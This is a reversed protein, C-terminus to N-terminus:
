NEKWSKGSVLSVHITILNSFVDVDIDNGAWVVAGGVAAGPDTVDRLGGHLQSQDAPWPLLWWSTRRGLWDLFAGQLFTGQLFAGQLFAGQLFAGQLFAGQHGGEFGSGVGASFRRRSQLYRGVSM